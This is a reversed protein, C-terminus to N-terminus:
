RRPPRHHHRIPGSISVEPPSENVSASPYPLVCACDTAVATALAVVGNAAV